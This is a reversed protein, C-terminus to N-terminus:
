GRGAVGVDMKIDASHWFVPGRQFLPWDQKTLGIRHQYRHKPVQDFVDCVMGFPRDGARVCINATEEFAKEMDNKARGLFWSGSQAVMERIGDMVGEIHHSGDDFHSWMLADRQGIQGVPGTDGFLVEA